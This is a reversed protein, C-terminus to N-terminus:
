RRPAHGLHEHSMTGGDEPARIGTECEREVALTERVGLVRYQERKVGLEEPFGEEWSDM